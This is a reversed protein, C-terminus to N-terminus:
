QTVEALMRRLYDAWERDGTVRVADTTRGWLWRLMEEPAAQVAVRPHDSAGDEVIVDRPSPAM